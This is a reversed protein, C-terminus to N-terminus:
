RWYETAIIDLAVALPGSGCGEANRLPARRIVDVPVGYQLALSGVVAGDRAAMDSDSGCKGNTLSIEALRGDPFRSITAVYAFGGHFEFSEALRRNPLRKRGAEKTSYSM